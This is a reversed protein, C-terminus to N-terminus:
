AYGNRRGWELWDAAMLRLKGRHSEPVPDEGSIARLAWFWHDLQGSLERLILRLAPTGMGIIRQYAPHMAIVTTSSSSRNDRKWQRSLESFEEEIDTQRAHIGPMFFEMLEAQSPYSQPSPIRISGCMQELLSAMRESDQCLMHAAIQSNIQSIQSVDIM